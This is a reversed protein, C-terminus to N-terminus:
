SIGSQTQKWEALARNKHHLGFYRGPFWWKVARGLVTRRCWCDPDCGCERNRPNHIRRLVSRAMSRAYRELSRHWPTLHERGTLEGLAAPGRDDGTQAIPHGAAIEVAEELSGCEIIDFGGVAERTEAFPGDTDLAKGDRVRV